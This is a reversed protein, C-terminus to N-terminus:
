KAKPDKKFLEDNIPTDPPLPIRNLDVIQGDQVVARPEITELNLAGHEHRREKLRQAAGDQLRIQEPVGPAAAMARPM